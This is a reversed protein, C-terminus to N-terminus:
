KKCPQVICPEFRAGASLGTATSVVQARHCVYVHSRWRAAHPKLKVVLALWAWSVDKGSLVTAHARQQGSVGGNLGSEFRLQSFLCLTVCPAVATLPLLNGGLCPPLPMCGVLLPQCLSEGVVGQKNSSRFHCRCQLLGVVHRLQVAVNGGISSVGGCEVSWGACIVHARSRESV